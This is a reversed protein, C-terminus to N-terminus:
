TEKKHLKHLLIIYRSIKNRNDMSIKFPARKEIRVLYGMRRNIKALKDAEQKTSAECDHWYKKDSFMKWRPIDYGINLTKIEM